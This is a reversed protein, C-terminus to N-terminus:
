SAELIFPNTITKKGFRELMTLLDTRDLNEDRLTEEIRKRSTSPIRSLFFPWLIDSTYTKTVDPFDAICTYVDSNIFDDDYKFIWQGKDFALTGVAIDPLFLKFEAKQDTQVTLEEHGDSKLLDKLWNIM